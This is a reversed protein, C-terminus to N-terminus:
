NYWYLRQLISRFVVLHFNKDYLGFKKRYISTKCLDRLLLDTM